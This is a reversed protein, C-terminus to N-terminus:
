WAVPLRTRSKGIVMSLSIRSHVGTKGLISCAQVLLLLASCAAAHTFGMDIAHTACIQLSAAAPRARESPFLLIVMFFNKPMTISAETM